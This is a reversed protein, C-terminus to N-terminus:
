RWPAPYLWANRDAPFNVSDLPVPSAGSRSYHAASSWQWDQPRKALRAEVPNNHIYELKDWFDGVRRLIFDFYRAQWIAGRSQRHKTMRQATFRKLRHMTTVLGCKDPALLLHLHDSMVVYGFLLFDGATHQRDLQALVMDREVPTLSAIGRALNTTVFFIRDRDAIRRLRSV